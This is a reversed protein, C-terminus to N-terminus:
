VRKASVLMKRSSGLLRDLRVMSVLAFRRPWSYHHVFYRTSLPALPERRAMKLGAAELLQPVNRHSFYCYHQGEYMEDRIGATREPFLRFLRRFVPVLPWAEDVSSLVLIGGPALLRSLALLTGVPDALHALVDFLAIRDFSGEAFPADHVEGLHIEGQCRQRAELVSTESVDIGSAEWGRLELEELLHGRSCGVELVRGRRRPGCLEEMSDAQARAIARLVDGGFEGETVESAKGHHAQVESYYGAIEEAPGYVDTCRVGCQSCTLLQRGRLDLFPVLQPNGCLPCAERPIGGPALGRSRVGDIPSESM